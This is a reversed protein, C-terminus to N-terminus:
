IETSISPGVMAIFTSPDWAERWRANKKIGLTREAPTVRNVSRQAKAGRGRVVLAGILISGFYQANRAQSL